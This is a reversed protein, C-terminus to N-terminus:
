VHMLKEDEKWANKCSLYPVGTCLHWKEQSQMLWASLNEAACYNHLSLSSKYKKQVSLSVATIRNSPQLLVEPFLSRTIALRQM